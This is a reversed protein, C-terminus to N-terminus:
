KVMYRLITLKEDRGIGLHYRIFICLILIESITTDRNLM